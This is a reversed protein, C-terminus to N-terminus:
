KQGTYLRCEHMLTLNKSTNLIIHKLKGRVGQGFTKGSSMLSPSQELGWNNGIIATFHRYKHLSNICVPLFLNHGRPGFQTVVKNWHEIM